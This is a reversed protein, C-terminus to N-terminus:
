IRHLKDAITELDVGSNEERIDFMIDKLIGLHQNETATDMLETMTESKEFTRLRITKQTIQEHFVTTRKKFMTM